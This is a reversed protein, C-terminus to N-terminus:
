TRGGKLTFECGNSLGVVWIRCRRPIDVTDSWAQSFRKRKRPWNELSMLANAEVRTKAELFTNPM